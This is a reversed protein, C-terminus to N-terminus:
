ATGTPASATAAVSGFRGGSRREIWGELELRGLGRLVEAVPADLRLALEDPTFPRERLMRLIRTDAEASTRRRPPGPGSEGDSGPGELCPDAPSPPAGDHLWGLADFVDGAGTVLGAGQRLLRLCGVASPDGVRGPVALVERGLDLAYGATISAGSKAGAEVVIVARGLAAILRNRRPFTSRSPATDPEFESLLLGRERMRAYLDRNEQPFEYDHGSGLVGISGGGADLAGAHAAADIGRAMGSVVTWGWRGLEQGLAYATRLGYSTAARTGVIAVTRGPDFRGDGQLFVVPPPDVLEVFPPPYAEAGYVVTAIGRVRADALLRSASPLDPRRLARYSAPTLHVRRPFGAVLAEAPLSPAAALAQVGSGHRDVLVRVSACGLGPVRSLAVLAAREAEEEPESRAQRSSVPVDRVTIAAM